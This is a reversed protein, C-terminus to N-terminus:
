LFKVCRGGSVPLNGYEWGKRALLEDGVTEDEGKGRYMGERTRGERREKDRGEKWGQRGEM